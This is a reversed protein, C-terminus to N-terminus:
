IRGGKGKEGSVKASLLPPCSPAPTCCHLKFFRLLHRIFLMESREKRMKREPDRAGEAFLLLLSYNAQQLHPFHPHAFVVFVLAPVWGARDLVWRFRWLAFLITLNLWGSLIQSGESNWFVPAHIAKALFYVLGFAANEKETCNRKLLSLNLNAPSKLTTQQTKKQHSSCCLPLLLWICFHSEAPNEKTKRWAAQGEIRARHQRESSAACCCLRPTLLISSSLPSGWMGARPVSPQRWRRLARQGEHPVRISVGAKLSPTILRQM